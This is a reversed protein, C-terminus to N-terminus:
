ATRGTTGVGPDRSAAKDKAGASGANNPLHDHDPMKRGIWAVFLGDPPRGDYGISEARARLNQAQFLRVLEDIDFWTEWDEIQLAGQRALNKDIIVLRGGPALVRVMEAVAAPPNPLHELAEVCYVLDFSADAYPLDQISAERTLIGPAVRRLMEASIDVAHVEAQPRQGKVLAAYRGNGCGADLIRRAEGLEALIAQARGDAAPITAGYHHATHDFHRAVRLQAADIAYKAAWPIEDAAFYNAGVGYSGYFGGSGNQLLALFDLARDARPLDDLLYWVIALQALGTSCIWPIDFYAPVAGNNQQYAAVSAMGQRAQDVYGLEFLAEQMYGYFHTLMNSQAFDVLPLNALYYSLAREAARQITPQGLITAADMLPKIAYLHIGESVEGRPGLSWDGGTAPVLLRGTTADAGNVIWDCARQLPGHLEPLRDIISVWGRVVQGTDFVYKHRPDDLSFSGDANQVTVLWRAFSLALEVEGVKLLTPILYGTVEPYPIRKRHTIPIASGQIHNAHIWQLARDLMSQKSAPMM